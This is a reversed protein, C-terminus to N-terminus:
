WYGALKSAPSRAPCQDEGKIGPFLQEMKKGVIKKTAGGEVNTTAGRGPDGLLLFHLEKYITKSPSKKTANEAGKLRNHLRRALYRKRGRNEGLNVRKGKELHRIPTKNSRGDLV